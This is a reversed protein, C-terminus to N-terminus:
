KQKKAMEEDIIRKAYNSAWIAGAIFAAKEIVMQNATNMRYKEAAINLEEKGTLM